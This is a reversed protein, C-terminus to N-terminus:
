IFLFHNKPISFTLTLKCTLKELTANIKEKNDENYALQLLYKQKNIWFNTFKLFLGEWCNYVENVGLSYNLEMLVRSKLKILLSHELHTVNGWAELQYPIDEMWTFALILCVIFVTDGSYELFLPSKKSILRLFYNLAILFFSGEINFHKFIAKYLGINSKGSHHSVVRNIFEIKYYDPIKEIDKITVIRSNIKHIKNYRSRYADRRIDGKNLINNRHNNGLLVTM